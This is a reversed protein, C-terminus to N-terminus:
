SVPAREAAAKYIRDFAEAFDDFFKERRKQKEIKEGILAQTKQTDPVSDKFVPEDQYEIEMGGFLDGMLQHYDEATENILTAEGDGKVSYFGETQMYDERTTTLTYMPVIRAMEDEYNWPATVPVANFENRELFYLNRRIAAMDSAGPELPVIRGNALAYDAGEAGYFLSVYNERAGLWELFHLFEDADTNPGAVADSGSYSYYGSGEYECVPTRDGYMAYIRYGAADFAAFEGTHDGSQRPDSFDYFYLLATPFDGFKQREPRGLNKM